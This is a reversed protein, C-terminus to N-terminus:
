HPIFDITKLIKDITIDGCKFHGQPCTRKGHLGCPRCDLQHDSEIVQSDDSLPTYGFAPVTSCFLARVPANMASCIHLPASDNVFNMKAGAMLAASKLFSLQGAKNVVKPHLTKEAIQGCVQADGKGGLLFVSYQHPLRDILLIWNEIPFQKTFWVSTPALCFYEGECKVAEFDSDSPYLRPRLALDGAWRAILAQNRDVEHSARSMADMHHEIRHSFFCSLPNKAFGVTTKAGSLVTLLGTTSYRQVNVVLDYRNSRIKKIMKLLNRYKGDSKDFVLVSRLLPHDALLGDNGKRLLFDIQCSPYQKKLGEVLSTALIVDGIFATQIILCSAIQKEAFKAKMYSQLHNVMVDVSFESSIRQLANEAMELGNGKSFFDIIGKSLAHSNGSEVVIGDVNPRILESVGNVQTSLVPVGNAMAEMVVNPMGEYLSSLVFLNAGKFLPTLDPQFGLLFFRQSLGLRAIRAQIKKELKGQGAVFFYLDACETVAEKAADLLYEFGKQASFRGASLIIKPEKVSKPIYQRYDFPEIKTSPIEVGNYLVKVFSSDWWGYSDYENKITDTNTIIGDCFRKYTFRYKLSPGILKVGQRSIVLPYGILCRIAGAVRVDRNQCAIIVDLPHTKAFRFLQIAGTLSIDSHIDVAVFEVGRDTARQQLVSNRVGGIYVQHGKDQLGSAALLMWKEGGGWKNRGISNLILIRM